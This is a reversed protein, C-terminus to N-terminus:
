FAVIVLRMQQSDKICELSNLSGIEKKESCNTIDPTKEKLRKLNRTKIQRLVCGCSKGVHMKQFNTVLPREGALSLTLTEPISRGLPVMLLLRVLIYNYIRM